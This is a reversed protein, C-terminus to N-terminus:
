EHDITTNDITPTDIDNAALDREIPQPDLAEDLLQDTSSILCNRSSAAVPHDTSAIAVASRRVAEDIRLLAPM